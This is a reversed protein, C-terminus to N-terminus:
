VQRKTRLTPEMWHGSLRSLSIKGPMYSLCGTINSCDGHLGTMCGYLGSIDGTLNSCDGRLDVHVTGTLGGHLGGIPGSPTNYWILM